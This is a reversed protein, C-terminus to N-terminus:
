IVVVRKVYDGIKRRNCQDTKREVRVVSGSFGNSFINAMVKDMRFKKM